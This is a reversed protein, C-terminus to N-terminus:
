NKNRGFLSTLKMSRQFYWINTDSKGHPEKEITRCEELTVGVREKIHMRWNEGIRALVDIRTFKNSANDANNDDSNDVNIVNCSTEFM